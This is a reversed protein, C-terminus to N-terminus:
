NGELNDGSGKPEIRGLSQLHEIYCYQIYEVCGRHSNGLALSKAREIQEPTFPTSAATAADWLVKLMGLCGHEAAEEFATKGRFKAPAEHVRAGKSLLLEAIKISGSRAALQLATAGGSCAPQEDVKAGKNLLLEVMKFSGIKCAKQLPTCKIGRKAPQHIDAGNALLLEVVRESRIEIAVMLATELCHDGDFFPKRAPHNLDLKGTDVLHQLLALGGNTGKTNKIAFGVPSLFHRGDQDQFCFAKLDFKADIMSDLLLTDGKKIAEILLPGGFGELGFPYKTSFLRLLTDFISQNKEMAVLLADGDRPSAGHSILLQITGSDDNQIAAKLPTGRNRDRTSPNAGRELLLKILDNNRSEVAVILAEAAQGFGMFLLDEVVSLNGWRGALEMLSPLRHRQSMHVESGPHRELIGVVVARNQKFVAEDLAASTHILVLSSRIEKTVTAENDILVLASDTKDNHIAMILADTLVEGRKKPARRLLMHIYDIDGIEAAACLAAEFHDDKGNDNIYSLAGLQEIRQVLNKDHSRIAEALATTKLDYISSPFGRFKRSSTIEIDSLSVSGEVMSIGRLLLHEIIEQNSSKIAAPLVGDVKTNISLFWEVLESNGRRAASRLTKNMEGECKPCDRACTSQPCACRPFVHKVVQTAVKNELYRAAETLIEYSSWCRDPAAPPIRDILKHIVDIQGWRIAAKILEVRVKAGGDLIAQVLNIDVAEFKGHIKIARELAGRAYEGQIKDEVDVYTKNVDAKEVLLIKVIGLHRFSAALEIPTYSGGYGNIKCVTQNPDIANSSGNTAQFILRVADEDCAEIAARFLNDALSKVQASPASKFYELIHSTMQSDKRLIGLIVAPPINKLGAFGNAISFLLASRFVSDSIADKTSIDSAQGFSQQQSSEPLLSLLSDLVDEAHPLNQAKTFMSKRALVETVDRLHAQTPNRHLTQSSWHGSLGTYESFEIHSNNDLGSWGPYVREFGSFSSHDLYQPLCTSEYSGYFSNWCDQLPILANDATPGHFDDMSPTFPNFQPSQRSNPSVERGERLNMLAQSPSDGPGSTVDGYPSFTPSFLLSVDDVIGMSLNNDAFAPPLVLQEVPQIIAHDTYLQPPHTDASMSKGSYTSWEGDPGRTEISIRNPPPLPLVPGALNKQSQEVGSSVNRLSRQLRKKSLVKGSVKIRTEIGKCSLEQLKVHVVRWEEKKLNKPQDLDRFYKEYQAM